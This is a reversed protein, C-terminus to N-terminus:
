SSVTSLPSQRRGARVTSSNDAIVSKARCSGSMELSRFTRDQINSCQLSLPTRLLVSAPAQSALMVAHRELGGSFVEPFKFPPVPDQWNRRHSQAPSRQSEHTTLRTVHGNISHRLSTFSTIM